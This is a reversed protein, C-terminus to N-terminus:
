FLILIRFKSKKQNVKLTITNGGTIVGECPFVNFVKYKELETTDILFHIPNVDPNSLMVEVPMPIFKDNSIIKKKFDVIQPDILLKPKLGRCKVTRTLSELPGYGALVIPLEFNYSKVDKPTFKLLFKLTKGPKINIQYNRSSMKQDEEVSQSQDSFDDEDEEMINKPPMSNKKGKQKPDLIPTQNNVKIKMASHAAEIKEVKEDFENISHMPNEEEEEEFGQNLLAIELCGYGLDQTDSSERIDFLL